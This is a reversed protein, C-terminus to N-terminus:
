DPFVPGTLVSLIGLLAFELHLVTRQKKNAYATRCVNTPSAGMLIASMRSSSAINLLPQKLV